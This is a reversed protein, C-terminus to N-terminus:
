ANAVAVAAAVRRDLTGFEMPLRESGVEGGVGGAGRRWRVAGRRPPGAGGNPEYSHRLQLQQKSLYCSSHFPPYLRVALFSM